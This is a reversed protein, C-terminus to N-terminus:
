QGGHPLTRVRSLLWIVYGYTSWIGGLVVGLLAVQLPVPYPSIFGPQPSLRSLSERGPRIELATPGAEGTRLTTRIESDEGAEVSLEGPRTAAPLTFQWRGAQDTAGKAISLWGFATRMKLVVPVDPVATGKADVVVATVRFSGGPAAQVRMTVEAAEAARAAPVALALVIWFAAVLILSRSMPGDRPLSM